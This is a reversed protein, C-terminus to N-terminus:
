IRLPFHDPCPSLFRILDLSAALAMGRSENGPVIQRRMLLDLQREQWKSPPFTSHLAAANSAFPMSFRWHSRIKLGEM